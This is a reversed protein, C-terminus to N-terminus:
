RVPGSNDPSDSWSDISRMLESLSLDTENPLGEPWKRSVELSRATEGEVRLVREGCSSIEYDDQSEGRFQLPGDIVLNLAFIWETSDPFDSSWHRCAGGNDGWVRIMLRPEEGRYIDLIEVDMGNDVHAIVKAHVVLSASQAAALFPSTDRCSCADAKSMLLFTITFAAPLNRMSNM